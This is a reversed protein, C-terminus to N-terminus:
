GDRMQDNSLADRIATWDKHAVILSGLFVNTEHIKDTIDNLKGIVANHTMQTPTKGHRGRSGIQIKEESM